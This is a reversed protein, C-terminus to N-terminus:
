CIPIEITFLSYSPVSRNNFHIGRVSFSIKKYNIKIWYDVYEPTHCAM